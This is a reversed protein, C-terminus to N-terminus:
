REKHEPADHVADIGEAVGTAAGAVGHALVEATDGLGKVLAEGVKAAENESKKKQEEDMDGTM